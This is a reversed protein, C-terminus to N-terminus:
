KRRVIRKRLRRIKATKRRARLHLLCFAYLLQKIALLHRFKGMRFQIQGGLWPIQSHYRSTGGPGTTQSPTVNKSMALYSRQLETLDDDDDALLSCRSWGALMWCSVTKLNLCVVSLSSSSPMRNQWNLSLSNGLAMYCSWTSYATLLWSCCQSAIGGQCLGGSTKCAQNRITNAIM